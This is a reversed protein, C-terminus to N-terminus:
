NSSSKVTPFKEVHKIKGISDFMNWSGTKQYENLDPIFLLSGEEKLQGNSYYLKETYKKEKQNILILTSQLQGNTYWVKKYVIYKLEKENEQLSMPLGSSYFKAIKKPLGNYFNIQTRKIGNEFYIDLISNAPDNIVLNRECTGNEFFNKFLVIKGNKYFGKHLIKGSQYYDEKWGQIKHGDASLRMSDGNLSEIWKNYFTIGSLSDLIQNQKYRKQQITNEYRQQGNSYLLTFLIFIVTILTKKEM